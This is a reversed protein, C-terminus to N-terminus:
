CKWTFVIVNEYETIDLLRRIFSDSTETNTIRIYKTEMTNWWNMIKNIQASTPNLRVTNNKIGTSEKFYFVPYSSFYITDDNIRYKM